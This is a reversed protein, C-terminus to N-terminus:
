SRLSRICSWLTNGGLQAYGESYTFGRQTVACRICHPHNSYQRLFLSFPSPRQVSLLSVTQPAANETEPQSPISVVDMPCEGKLWEGHVCAYLTVYVSCAYLWKMNRKKKDFYFKFVVHLEWKKHTEKKLSVSNLPIKQHQRHEGVLSIKIEATTNSVNSRM